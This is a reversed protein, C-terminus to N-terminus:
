NNATAKGISGTGFITYTLNELSQITKPECWVQKDSNYIAEELGLRDNLVYALVMKWVRDANIGSATTHKVNMEKLQNLPMYDIGASVSQIWDIHHSQVFKFGRQFDWGLM